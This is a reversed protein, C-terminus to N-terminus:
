AEVVKPGGRRESLEASITPYVFLRSGKFMGAVVGRNDGFKRDSGKQM